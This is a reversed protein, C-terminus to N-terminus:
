YGGDVDYTNRGYDIGCSAEKMAICYLDASFRKGVTEEGYALQATDLITILPHQPKGFGLIAHM